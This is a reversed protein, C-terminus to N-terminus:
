SENGKFPIKAIQGSTATFQVEINVYGESGLLM